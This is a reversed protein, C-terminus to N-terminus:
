SLDDEIIDYLNKNISSDQDCYSALLNFDSESNFSLFRGSKTFAM